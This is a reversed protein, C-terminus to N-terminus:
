YNEKYLDCAYKYGEWNDVGAMNLASLFNIDEQNSKVEERLQLVLKILEEKTLKNLEEM